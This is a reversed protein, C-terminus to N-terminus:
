LDSVFRLFAQELSVQSVSYDNIFEGERSEYSQQMRAFIQSLRESETPLAYERMGELNRLFHVSPFLRHVLKDVRESDFIHSRVRLIYCDAFKEKLETPTGVFKTEGRSMVGIRDCLASAEDTSNTTLFVARERSAAAIIKRVDARAAPDLGISPEDLLMIEPDGMAAMAISLRRRMGGSYNATQKDQHETLNAHRLLEEVARRVAPEPVGKIRAALELHERGTLVEWLRDYQLCMGIKEPPVFCEVVGADPVVVGAITNLVTSKGSGNMGMLGFCEHKQVELWM